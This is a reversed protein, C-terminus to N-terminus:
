TFTSSQRLSSVSPSAVPIFLQRFSIKSCFFFSITCNSLFITDLFSSIKCYFIDYFTQHYSRDLLSPFYDLLFYFVAPAIDKLLHSPILTGIISSVEFPPMSWEILAISAGSLM